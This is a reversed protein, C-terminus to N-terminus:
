WGVCWVCILCGPCMWWGVGASPISWIIVRGLGWVATQGPDTAREGGGVGVAASTVLWLQASIGTDGLAQVLVTTAALGVGAQGGGAAMLSVVAACEVGSAAQGLLGAVVERSDDLGVEVVVARGALGDRVVSVWEPLAVGVPMVVLCMGAGTVQIDSIPSWGIRYRWGEITSEEKRQRRWSSLVPLLRDLSERVAAQDHRDELQRVRLRSQQLEKAVRKLYERLKEESNM